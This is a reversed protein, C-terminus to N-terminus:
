PEPRNPGQTGQARASLYAYLDAIHTTVSPEGEWAPMVLAAEKRQLIDEILAERTAGESKAKDISNNWGYRKLVLSVFQRPEM